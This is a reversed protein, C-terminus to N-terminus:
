STEDVGEATPEAQVVAPAGTVPRRRRHVRAPQARLVPWWDCGCLGHPCDVHPLRPTRLEDAIRFSRGNDSRCSTCCSAGVLEADRSMRALARLTAAVGERYLATAEDSPPLSGGTEAFLAGAQERRIRAVEDWGGARRAARAAQDATSLYLTRSSAVVAATLAAEALSRRREEPARVAKALELWRFRQTAWTLELHDREREEEFVAVASEALYVVRGHLKRVM